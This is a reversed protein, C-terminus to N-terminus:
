DSRPPAGRARPGVRNIRCWDMTLFGATLLSVAVMVSDVVAAITQWLPFWAMPLLPVLCMTLHHLGCAGIFLAFPRMYEDRVFGSYHRVVHAIWLYTLGTLLNASLWQEPFNLWGNEHM